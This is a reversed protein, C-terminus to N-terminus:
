RLGSVQSAGPYLTSRARNQATSNPSSGQNRTVRSRSAPQEPRLFTTLTKTALEGRATNRTSCDLCGSLRSRSRLTIRRELPASSHRRRRRTALWPQTPDRYRIFRSSTTGELADSTDRLLRTHLLFNFNFNFNSYPILFSTLDLSPKLVLCSESTLYPLLSRRRTVRSCVVSNHEM